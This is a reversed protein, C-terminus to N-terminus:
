PLRSLLSFFELEGFVTSLKKKDYGQWLCGELSFGLEEDCRIRALSQSLFAKEKQAVLKDFVSSKLSKKVDKQGLSSYLNELTQFRGILSIATKEGVGFVGPINDSPDGRLAKFDILQKPTLGQYRKQVTAEDYLVTESIGRKLILVKTKESVLQLLDTDSSLIIVKPAPSQSKKEVSFAVSGIIDDAELGPKEFVKITMMALIEKIQPLQQLFPEPTKPRTAKYDQFVQHRFTPAPSDFATVVFVPKLDRLAKFFISFFGYIANVLRGNKTTLPPLAHFARHALSNADIIMLLPEQFEM